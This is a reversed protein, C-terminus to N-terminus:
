KSLIVTHLHYFYTQSEGELIGGLNNSKYFDHLKLYDLIPNCLFQGNKINNTYADLNHQMDPELEKLVNAYDEPTKYLADLRKLNQIIGEVRDELNPENDFSYDFISYKKIGKRELWTHYGQASLVLFPKLGVIPKFTKESLYHEGPLYRSETVIDILGKFYNRPFHNIGYEPKAHLVFDEEDVLDSRNLKYTVVGKELLNHNDLQNILESRHTDRRRNYCVFLKSPNQFLTNKSIIYKNIENYNVMDYGHWEVHEVHPYEENPYKCHHLQSPSMVYIKKNNAECWPQCLKMLEGFIVDTEMETGSMAIIGDLTPNLRDVFNKIYHHYDSVGDTQYNMSQFHRKDM